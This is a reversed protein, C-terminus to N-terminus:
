YQASWQNNYEYLTPKHNANFTLNTRPKYNKKLELNQVKM